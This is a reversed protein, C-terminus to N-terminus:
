NRGSLPQMTEGWEQLFKRTEFDVMWKFVLTKRNLIWSSSQYRQARHMNKTGLHSNTIETYGIKFEGETM